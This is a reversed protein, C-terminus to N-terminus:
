SPYVNPRERCKHKQWTEIITADSCIPVVTYWCVLFVGTGNDNTFDGGQLFKIATYYHLAVQPLINHKSRTDAGNTAGCIFRRSMLDLSVHMTSPVGSM